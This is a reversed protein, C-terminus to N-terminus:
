LRGYKFIFEDGTCGSSKQEYQQSLGFAAMDCRSEFGEVPEFDISRM